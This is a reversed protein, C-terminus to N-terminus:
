QEKQSLLQVPVPKQKEKSAPDPNQETVVPPPGAKKTVPMLIPEINETPPTKTNSTTFPRDTEMPKFEGGPVIPKPQDNVTLTKLQAIEQAVVPDTPKTREKDSLKTLDAAKPKEEAQQAAVTISIFIGLVLACIKKSNNKM